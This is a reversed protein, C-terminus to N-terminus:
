RPQQRTLYRYLTAGHVALQLAVQRASLKPNALITRAMEVQEAGLSRPRGLLAGGTRAAELGARTRERVLESEFEELACFVHFVLKGEATTTDIAEHLSCLGVGRERLGLVIESVM